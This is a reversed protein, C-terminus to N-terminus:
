GGGQAAMERRKERAAAIVDRYDLRAVIRRFKGIDGDALLVIDLRLGDGVPGLQWTDLAYFVEEHDSPPFSAVVARKVEDSPTPKFPPAPMTKEDLLTESGSLERLALTLVREPTDCSSPRLLM